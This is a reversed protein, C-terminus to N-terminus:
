NASKLLISSEGIQDKKEDKEADNIPADMFADQNFLFVLHTFFVMEVNFLVIGSIPFLMFICLSVEVSYLKLYNLFFLIFGTSVDWLGIATWILVITKANRLGHKKVHFALPWATTSIFADCFGVSAMAFNGVLGKYWFYIYAFGAVRYSQYGIVLWAPVEELFLKSFWPLKTWAFFMIGAPVAFAINYWIVGNLDDLLSTQSFSLSQIFYDPYTVATVIAYWIPFVAAMTMNSHVKYFYYSALLSYSAGIIPVIYFFPGLIDSDLTPM